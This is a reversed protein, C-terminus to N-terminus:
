ALKIESSNIDLDFIRNPKLREVLYRDHSVLVLTGKYEKLGKELEELVELDLHNSPEDLIICNPKLAVLEAIILRSYEGPSLLYVEKKVDDTTIRFRSLLKRSETLELETIDMFEEIVKKDTKNVWREQSLYGIKVNDGKEIIGKDVTLEGVLMKLLSTKGTGNKGVVHLRDGYQIRLNIPGIDRKGIRKEVNILEFVKTSGHENNFDIKLPIERIPKVIEETDEKYRELRDKMVRARRGAKAEKDRLTAAVPKEKEHIPLDKITKRTHEIEKLWSLRQDFSKDMKEVKEKKDSFDKWQREIKATREEMYDSYNGDYINSTKTLPDIEIIKNVTKDLFMRDHSIILFSSVSRAIFNEIMKLGDDDLNNTPEDLLFLGADSSIIPVLIRKAIEGGSLNQQDLHLQPFYKIKLDKSYSVVGNDKEVLDAIIKFLTSKGSGNPGIIGIKEGKSLTFTIDKLIELLEFKKSIHSCSLIISDHM